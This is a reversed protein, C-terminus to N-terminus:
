LIIIVAFTARSAGFTLSMRTGPDCSIVNIDIQNVAPRHSLV